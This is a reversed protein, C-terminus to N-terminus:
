DRIELSAGRINLLSIDHIMNKREAGYCKEEDYQEGLKRTVEVRTVICQTIFSILIVKM